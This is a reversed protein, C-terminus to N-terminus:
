FLNAVSNQKKNKLPRKMRHGDFFKWNMMKSGYVKQNCSIQGRVRVRKGFPLPFLQARERQSLTPTLTL